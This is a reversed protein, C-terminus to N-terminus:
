KDGENIKSIEGDKLYIQRECKEALDQDHTVIILTSGLEKNLQFLLEVIKTGTETDLNGTPEDAFIIRPQNVVARAICVRQKQGGSLDKAKNSLKDLLDVMELSKRAAEKRVKYADGSIELPLVVNDLVTEHPQLYFMQFIFGIEENRFKDIESKPKDFINDGDIIVEGDDPTDLGSILHMLTSKGSGSKGVIALSEGEKVEFTVDNLAYFKNDEPGYTKTLEKIQIM